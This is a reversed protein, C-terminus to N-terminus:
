CFRGNARPKERPGAVQHTSLDALQDIAAVLFEQLGGLSFERSCGVMQLRQVFEPGPPKRGRM